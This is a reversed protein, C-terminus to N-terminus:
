ERGLDRHSVHVPLDSQRLRAALAESLAVSRHKGGTCGVAVTLYSKGEAIFRPVLFEILDYLRRQFEPTEPQGEVFARVEEDLGNHARLEDVFYPNPLFRVDFMLDAETPAGYKFGFSVVNISMPSAGEVGYSEKLFARLQHATFRSTDIVRDAAQRIERLSEREARIAEDLTVDPRSLPHPRRSESFRRHQVAESCEFFVLEIPANAARLQDLIGPFEKLFTAERVDVVLAAREIAPSSTRILDYFPPILQAPLNDVCFFGLDELCDGALTKGSGSLGTM